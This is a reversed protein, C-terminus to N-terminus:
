ARRLMREAGNNKKVASDLHIVEVLGHVNAILRAIEQHHADRLASCQKRLDDGDHISRQVTTVLLKADSPKALPQQETAPAKRLWADLDEKLAIVASRSTGRPRRVPLALDREYRQVTRVGRGLYSAIEKWSNLVSAVSSQPAAM